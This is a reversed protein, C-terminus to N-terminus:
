RMSCILILLIILQLQAPIMLSYNVKFSRVKFKDIHDKEFNDTKNRLPYEETKGNEGYMQIFVNADTGASSLDGTWM